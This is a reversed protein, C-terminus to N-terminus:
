DKEGPKSESMELIPYGDWVGQSHSALSIFGWTKALWWVSVHHYM